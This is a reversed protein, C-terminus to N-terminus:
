HAQVDRSPKKAEQDPPANKCVGRINMVALGFQLVILAYAHAHWGWAIWLLNSLIFAWFGWNRRYKSTSGVLWAAAITVVMAPWQLWDLYDM